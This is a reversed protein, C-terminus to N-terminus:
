ARFFAQGIGDPYVRKLAELTGALAHPYKLGPKAKHLGALHALFEEHATRFVGFPGSKGFEVGKKHREWHVKEHKLVAGELKKLNAVTPIIGRDRLFDKLDHRHPIVVAGGKQKILKGIAKYDPHGIQEFTVPDVFVGLSRRAKIFGKPARLIHPGFGLKILKM